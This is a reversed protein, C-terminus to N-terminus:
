KLKTRLNCVNQYYVVYLISVMNTESYRTRNVTISIGNVYRIILSLTQVIRCLKRIIEVSHM